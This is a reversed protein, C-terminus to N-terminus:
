RSSPLKCYDDIWEKIWENHCRMYITIENMFLLYNINIPDQRLPKVQIKERYFGGSAVSDLRAYYYESVFM